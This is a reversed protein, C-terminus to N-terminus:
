TTTPHAPEDSDLDIELEVEDGYYTGKVELVSGDTFRLRLSNRRAIVQDITKGPLKDAELMTLPGGIEVKYRPM